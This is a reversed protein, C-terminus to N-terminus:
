DDDGDGDGDGAADITPADILPTTDVVPADVTTGMCDYDPTIDNRKCWGDTACSYNDPCSDAEGCLFACEPNPTSYCSALLCACTFLALCTRLM